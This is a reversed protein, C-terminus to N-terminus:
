RTLRRITLIWLPSFLLSLSIVAMMLNYGAASLIGTQWGVM